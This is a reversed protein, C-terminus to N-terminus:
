PSWSMHASRQSLKECMRHGQNGLIALQAMQKMQAQADCSPSNRTPRAFRSTAVCSSQRTPLPCTSVGGDSGQRALVKSSTGKIDSHCAQSRPLRQVIATSAILSSHTHSHLTWSMAALELRCGDDDVPSKFYRRTM